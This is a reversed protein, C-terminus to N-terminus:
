KKVRQRVTQHLEQTKALLKSEDVLTHVRNVIVFQGAIMLDRINRGGHTILNGILTMPDREDYPIFFRHFMVRIELGDSYLLMRFFPWTGSFLFVSGGGTSTYLVNRVREFPSPALNYFVFLAVMSLIGPFIFFEGKPGELFKMAAFLGAMFVAMFLVFTGVVGFPFLADKYLNKGKIGRESMERYQQEGPKRFPSAAQGSGHEGLKLRGIYKIGFYAPVFFQGFVVVFMLVIFIKPPAIKRPFFNSSFIIVTLCVIMALTLVIAWQGVRKGAPDNDRLMKASLLFLAGLLAFGALAAYPYAEPFKVSIPFLYPIFFNWLAVGLCVYGLIKMAKAVKAPTPEGKRLEKIIDFFDMGGGNENLGNWCYM